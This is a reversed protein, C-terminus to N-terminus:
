RELGIADQYDKWVEAAEEIVEQKTAKKRLYAELEEWTKADPLNPDWQADVAFRRPLKLTAIYNLFSM